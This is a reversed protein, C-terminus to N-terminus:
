YALNWGKYIVWIACWIMLSSFFFFLSFKGAGLIHCEYKMMAGVNKMEVNLIQVRLLGSFVNSSITSSWRTFNVLYFSLSHYCVEFSLQPFGVLGGFYGLIGNCLALLALFAILNAAVNLVLPIARSAGFSAAEIINREERHSILVITFPSYFSSIM